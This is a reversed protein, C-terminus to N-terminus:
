KFYSIRVRGTGILTDVKAKNKGNTIVFAGYRSVGDRTYSIRSLSETSVKIKPSMEQLFVVKGGFVYERVRIENGILEVCFERSEDISRQQALHLASEIEQATTKLAIENYFGRYSPFAMAGMIAIISLTIIIEILTFGKENNNM